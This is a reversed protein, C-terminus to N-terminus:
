DQGSLLVFTEENKKNPKEIVLRGRLLIQALNGM